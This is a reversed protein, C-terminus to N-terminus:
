KNSLNNVNIRTELLTQKNLLGKYYDQLWAITYNVEDCFKLNNQLIFKNEFIKQPNIDNRLKNLLDVKSYLCMDDSKYIKELETLIDNIAIITGHDKPLDKYMEKCKKIKNSITTQMFEQYKSM